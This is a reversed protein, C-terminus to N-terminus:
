LTLSGGDILTRFKEQFRIQQGSGPFPLSVRNVVPLRADMLPNFLAEFVAAKILVIADPKIKDIEKILNKANERLIQVRQKSSGRIPTKSADILRYGDKAFRKLWQVKKSREFKTDGFEDGYIARMLQVWLSDQTLVNPFYFYREKAMPPSEAVFLIRTREPVYLAATEKHVKLMELEIVKNM